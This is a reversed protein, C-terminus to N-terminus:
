KHENAYLNNDQRFQFSATKANLRLDNMAFSIYSMAVSFKSFM